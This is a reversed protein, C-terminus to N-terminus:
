LTVIPLNHTNVKRCNESSEKYSYIGFYRVSTYLINRSSMCISYLFKNATYKCSYEMNLFLQFDCDYQSLKQLSYCIDHNKCATQFWLSALNGKM